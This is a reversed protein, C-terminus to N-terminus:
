VLQFLTIETVPKKFDVKSMEVHNSIECPIKSLLYLSYVMLNM